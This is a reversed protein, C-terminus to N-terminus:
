ANLDKIDNVMVGINYTTGETSFLRRINNYSTLVINDANLFASSGKDKLIGIVRYKIGAVNIIKDIARQINDGYLKQAVSNGLICISRGSQVDIRNFNRGESLTYGSQALYNEDVGTMSINPNTKVKENNVVVSQPGSISISVIAPFVYREKFLKAEQYTIIKRNNSRKEKLANISTKKIQDRGGIHIEQDRYRISFSNAGMTSFSETLSQNMADIATIIGILATIGLAIITVTIGTRLKNSKVTRFAISLLDATKM